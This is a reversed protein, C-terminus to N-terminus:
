CVCQYRTIVTPVKHRQATYVRFGPAFCVATSVKHLEEKLSHFSDDNCLRKCAKLLLPAKWAKVEPFKADGVPVQM